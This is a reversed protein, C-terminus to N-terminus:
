SSEWWSTPGNLAGAQVQYEAGAPVIFGISPYTGGCGFNGGTSCIDMNNVIVQNGDVYGDLSWGQSSGQVQGAVYVIMPHGTTNTYTGGFGRAGTQNQLNSFLTTYISAVSASLSNVEGQLSSVSSNTSSISSNTSSAQANLSSATAASLSNVQSSLTSSLASIQGSLANIENQLNNVDSGITANLSAVDSNLLNTLSNIENQLNNVDSDITSSLYEVDSSLSLIESDITEISQLAQTIGSVRCAINATTALIYVYEGVNAIINERSLVSGVPMPINSEVIDDNNPSSSNASIAVSITDNQTPSINTFNLAINAFNGSGSVQGLQTWQNAVSLAKDVFVGQVLTLFDSM